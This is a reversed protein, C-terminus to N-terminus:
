CAFSQETRSIINDQVPKGLDVWYSSYGAVRVVLDPYQEPRRQADVLTDKDVVNFQIHWIGLDYWTKLYDSFIKKNEDKLFQPM